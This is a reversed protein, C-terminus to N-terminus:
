QTQRGANLRQEVADLSKLRRAVIQAPLMGKAELKHREIEAQVQIRLNDLISFASAPIFIISSALLNDNTVRDARLSTSRYNRNFGVVAFLVGAAVKSGGIYAASEIRERATTVARVRDEKATQLEEAYVKDTAEYHGARAFLEDTGNGIRTQKLLKNLEALDAEMVSLDTRNDHGLNARLARETLAAAAKGVARSNLSQEPSYGRKRAELDHYGNIGFELAAAGAGIWAGIEPVYYATEQICPKVSAPDYIRSGRYSTSIIAGTLGLSMNAEQLGGYRWGKWRGQRSVQMTYHLNFRELEIEKLIIKRTLTDIKPRLSGASEVAASLDHPASLLEAALSADPLVFFSFLSLSIVFRNKGFIKM